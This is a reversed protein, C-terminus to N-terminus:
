ENTAFRTEIIRKFLGYDSLDGLKLENNPYFKYNIRGYQISKGDKKKRKILRNFELYDVIGDTDRIYIGGKDFTISNPFTEKGFEKEVGHFTIKFDSEQINEFHYRGSTGWGSQYYTNNLRFEDHKKSTKRISDNESKFSEDYDLNISEIVKNSDITTILGPYIKQGKNPDFDISSDLLVTGYTKYEYKGHYTYKYIVKDSQHVKQIYLSSLREDYDCGQFVLSLIIVLKIYTRM